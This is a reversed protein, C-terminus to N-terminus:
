HSKVVGIYLQSDKNVITFHCYIENADLKQWRLANSLMYSISLKLVVMFLSTKTKQLVFRQHNESMVFWQRTAVSMVLIQLIWALGYLITYMKCQIMEDM